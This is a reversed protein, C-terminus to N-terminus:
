LDFTELLCLIGTMIQLRVLRRAHPCPSHLRTSPICRFAQRSFVTARFYTAQTTLLRYEKQGPNCIIDGPDMQQLAMQIQPVM